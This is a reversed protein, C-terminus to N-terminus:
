FADNCKIAVTCKRGQVTVNHCQFDSSICLVPMTVSFPVMRVSINMGLGVSAKQGQVTCKCLTSTSFSLFQCESGSRHM